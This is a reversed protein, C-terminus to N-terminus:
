SSRSASAALQRHGRYGDAMIRMMRRGLSTHREAMGIGAGVFLPNAHTEEVVRLISRCYAQRHRAAEGVAIDDCILEREQRLRWNAYWVLPHFVYLIQVVMQVWNVLLDLRRIHAVEHMLVPEIQDIPWERAMIRPLIIVPRRVGLTMPGIERLVSDAQRLAVKRRVGMQVCLADLTSAIDIRDVVPLGRVLRAARRARWFVLGAGGIVAAIWALALNQNWTM